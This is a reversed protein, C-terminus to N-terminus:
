MTLQSNRSTPTVPKSAGKDTRNNNKKFEYKEGNGHSKFKIDVGDGSLEDCNRSLNTQYKGRVDNVARNQIRDRTNKDVGKGDGNEEINKIERNVQNEIEEEIAKRHEKIHKHFAEVIKKANDDKKLPNFRVGDIKGEKMEEVIKNLAYKSAIVDVEDWKKNDYEGNLGKEIEDDLLDKYSSTFYEFNAQQKFKGLYDRLQQEEKPNYKVFKELQEHWRMLYEIKQDHNRIFNEEKKTEELITNLDAPGISCGKGKEGKLLIVMGTKVSAKLFAVQGEKGFGNSATLPPFTFYKLGQAKYVDLVVRALDTSMKEKEGLYISSRIPNGRHFTVSFQKKHEPYGDKGIVGDKEIDKPNAYVSLTTKGFFSDEIIEANPNVFKRISGIAKDIDLTGYKIKEKPIFSGFFSGSRVEESETLHGEPSISSQEQENAEEKPENGMLRNYESEFTGVENGDKDVVPEDKARGFDSIDIGNARCFAVLAELQEQTLKDKWYFLPTKSNIFRLDLGTGNLNFINHSLSKNEKDYTVTHKNEVVSKGDKEVTKTPFDYYSTLIEKLAQEIVDKGHKSLVAVSDLVDPHLKVLDDIHKFKKKKETYSDYAEIAKKIDDNNELEKLRSNVKEIIKGINEAYTTNVISPSGKLGTITKELEKVKSEDNAKKAADLEDEAKKLKDRLQSLLDNKKKELEDKKNEGDKEIAHKRALYESYRAKYNQEYDDQTDFFDTIRAALKEGNEGGKKHNALYVNKRENVDPSIAKRIAEIEEKLANQFGDDDTDEYLLYLTAAHERVEEEKLKKAREEEDYSIGIRYTEM